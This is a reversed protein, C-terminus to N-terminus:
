DTAFPQRVIEGGAARVRETAPIHPYSVGGPRDLRAQAHDVHAMVENESMADPADAIAGPSCATALEIRNRGHPRQM